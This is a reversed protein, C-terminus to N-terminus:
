VATWIQAFSQKNIKSFGIITEAQHGVIRSHLGLLLRKYILSLPNLFTSREHTGHGAGDHGNGTMNGANPLYSPLLVFSKIRNDHKPVTAPCRVESVLWVLGPAWGASLSRPCAVAASTGTPSHRRQDRSRTSARAGITQGSQTAHSQKRHNSTTRTGTETRSASCHKNLGPLWKSSISNPATAYVHLQRHTM